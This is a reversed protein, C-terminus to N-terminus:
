NPSPAPSDGKEGDKAPTRDSTEGSKTTDTQAEPTTTAKEPTRDSTETGETTAAKDKEQTTTAAPDTTTAAPDAAFASGAALAAALVAALAISRKMLREEQKKNEVWSFTKTDSTGAFEVGRSRRTSVNVLGEGPEYKLAKSFDPPNANFAEFEADSGHLFFERIAREYEEQNLANASPRIGKFFPDGFRKVAYEYAYSFAQCVPKGSNIERIKAAIAIDCKQRRMQADSELQKLRADTNCQASKYLDGGKRCRLYECQPASTDKVRGECKGYCGDHEDCAARFM